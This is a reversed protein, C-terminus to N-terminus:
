PDQRKAGLYLLAAGAAHGLLGFLEHPSLLQAWSAAKAADDSVSALILCLGVAVFMTGKSNRSNAENATELEPM